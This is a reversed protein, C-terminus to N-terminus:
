FTSMPVHSMVEIKEYDGSNSPLDGFRFTGTHPDLGAISYVGGCQLAQRIVASIDIQAILVNDETSSDGSDINIPEM